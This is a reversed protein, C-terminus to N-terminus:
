KIKGFSSIIQDFTEKRELYESEPTQLSITVLYSGSGGTSGLSLYFISRFHIKDLKEPTITYDFYYANNKAVASLLQSEVGDDNGGVKGKPLVTAQALQDVSGFSGLSTYDDRVSSYAIFCLTKSNTSTSSSPDVYLILKRRDLDSLNQESKIWSQPISVEFGCEKDQYKKLEEASAKDPNLITSLSVIGTAKGANEVFVRRDIKQNENNLDNIANLQNTRKHFQLKPIFAHSVQMIAISAFITSKM